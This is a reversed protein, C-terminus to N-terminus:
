GRSFHTFLKQNLFANFKTGLHLACFSLVCYKMIITIIIIITNFNQQQKLTNWNNTHAHSHTHTQTQTKLTVFFIM